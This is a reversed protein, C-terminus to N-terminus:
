VHEFRKLVTYVVVRGDLGLARVLRRMPVEADLPSIWVSRQQRFFYTRHLIRTFRKRLARETEPIDFAVLCIRDEPLFDAEHVSMCLFELAGKPTLGVRTNTGRGSTKVFGKSKLQSLTRERVRAQHARHEWVFSPTHYKFRHPFMLVEMWRSEFEAYRRGIDLLTRGMKSAAQVYGRKKKRGPKKRMQGM